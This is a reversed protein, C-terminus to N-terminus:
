GKLLDIKSVYCATAVRDICDEVRPLPFSDPKTARNVKQYDTCFRLTLDVKPSRLRCVGPVPVPFQLVM